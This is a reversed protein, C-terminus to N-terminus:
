EDAGGLRRIAAEIADFRRHMAAQGAELASVRAALLGDADPVAPRLNGDEDLSM